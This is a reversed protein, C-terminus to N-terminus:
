RVYQVEVKEAGLGQMEEALQEAQDRPLRVTVGFTGESFQPRYGPFFFLNPIRSFHFMSLLTATASFLITCEFAIVVFAPISILPKASVRLPYDISMWSTFLFALLCGTIGGLLTFLRVPSRKRGQYLDEEIGHEPFPSFVEIEECFGKGRLVRVARRVAEVESFEGIVLFQKSSM